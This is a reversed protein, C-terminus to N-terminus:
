NMCPSSLVCLLNILDNDAMYIFTHSNQNQCIFRRNKSDFGMHRWMSMWGTLNEGHKEDEDGELTM